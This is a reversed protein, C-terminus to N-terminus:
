LREPHGSIVSATLPAIYTSATRAAADAFIRSDLPVSAPDCKLACRSSIRVARHRHLGDSYRPPQPYITPLSGEAFGFGACRPRPSAAALTRDYYGGGYGLRYGGQDFGVLPVICFAPHVLEREAPIPIDWIGRQMKMGPEWKWFEVPAARQVVVPLGVVGGAQVHKRAIDRVDMEGRMPWYIGLADGTSFSIADILKQKAVEGRALRLHAPTAMRQEILVQRTRKRWTRIEEWNSPTAEASGPGGSM